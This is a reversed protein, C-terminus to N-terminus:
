IGYVLRDARKPGVNDLGSQRDTAHGRVLLMARAHAVPRAHAARGAEHRGASQVGGQM